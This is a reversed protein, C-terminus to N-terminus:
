LHLHTESHEVIQQTIYNLRLKMDDWVTKLTEQIFKNIEARIRRKFKETIDIPTEYIKSKTPSWLFFACPALDLSQSPRLVPGGRGIWRGPVKYNM